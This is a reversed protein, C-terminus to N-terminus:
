KNPRNESNVYIMCYTRKQNQQRKNLKIGKPNMHTPEM